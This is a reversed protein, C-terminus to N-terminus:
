RERSASVPWADTGLAVGRGPEYIEALAASVADIARQKADPQAGDLLACAITGVTTEATRVDIVDPNDFEIKYTGGAPVVVERGNDRYRVVVDGFTAVVDDRVDIETWQDPPLEHPRAESNSHVGM